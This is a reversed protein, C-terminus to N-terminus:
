RTHRQFPTAFSLIIRPDTPRLLLCTPSSPPHGTRKITFLPDCTALSEKNTCYSVACGGFGPARNTPQMYGWQSTRRPSVHAFIRHRLGLANLTTFNYFFHAAHITMPFSLLNQAIDFFTWQHASKEPWLAFCNAWEIISACAGQGSCTTVTNHRIFHHCGMPHVPTINRFIQADKMTTVTNLPTTPPETAM